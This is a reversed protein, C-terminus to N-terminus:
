WLELLPVLCTEKSAKMTTDRWAELWLPLTVAVASVVLVSLLTQDEQVEGLM